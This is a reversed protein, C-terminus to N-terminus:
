ISKPSAPHTPGYLIYKASHKRHVINEPKEQRSCDTDKSYSAKEQVFLKIATKQPREVPSETVDILAAEFHNEEKLLAKKGPLHFLCKNLCKM